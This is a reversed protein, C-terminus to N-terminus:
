TYYVENEFRWNLADLESNDQVIKLNMDDDIFELIDFIADDRTLQLLESLTQKEEGNLRDFFQNFKCYTETEPYIPNSENKLKVAIINSRIKLLKQIFKDENYEKM